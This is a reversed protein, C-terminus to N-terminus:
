YVRLLYLDLTLTRTGPLTVALFYTYLLVNTPYHYLNVCYLTDDHDECPHRLCGEGTARVPPTLAKCLSQLSIFGKEGAQFPFQLTLDRQRWQHSQFSPMSALLDLIVKLNKLHNETRASSRDFLTLRLPRDRSSHFRLSPQVRCRQAQVRAIETRM